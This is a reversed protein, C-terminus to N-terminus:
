LTDLYDKLGDMDQFTRISVARDQIFSVLAQQHKKSAKFIRSLDSPDYANVLDPLNPPVTKSDRFLWELENEAEKAVYLATQFDNTEYAREIKHYMNVFEEYFGSAIEAFPRSPRADDSELIMHETATVLEFLANTIDSPQEALFVTEYRKEFHDPVYAMNMIEKQIKGRGRKITTDNWLAIGEALHGLVTITHRRVDTMSKALSVDFCAAKANRIQDMAKHYREEFGLSNRALAKISEFRALDEDSGVYLLKGETIISTIKEERRAIREIREWSIPWFDFGIGEIMFVFGLAYGRDTKPIFYLDLDSKAHTEQYIHSGMMCVVAIDENYDKKIKEILLNAARTVDM